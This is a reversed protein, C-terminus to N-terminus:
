PKIYRVSPDTGMEPHLVFLKEGAAKSVKSVESEPDNLDGFIRAHVPCAEVCAPELGKDVRDYCLICKTAFGSIPDIQRAGYPCAWICVGCGICKSQDILVIGDERKYTAGTPCATLCPPNECHMCLTPLWYVRGDKEGVKYVHNWAVGDPLNHTEKCAKVCSHCGICKTLDIVMGWRKHEGGTEAGEAPKLGGLKAQAVGLATAVGVAVLGKIFDRRTSGEDKLAAM